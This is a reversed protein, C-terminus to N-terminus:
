HQALTRLYNIVDWRQNVSLNETMRPMRGFGDTLVGFLFTDDLGKLLQANLVPPPPNFYQGVPGGGQGNPGHCVECHIAFLAKGRAISAKDGPHPNQVTRAGKVYQAEQFPVSQDPFPIIPGEQNRVSPQNEMFSDFEVNVIEYTFPLALVLPAALILLIILTRRLM